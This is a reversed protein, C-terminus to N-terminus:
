AAPLGLLERAVTRPSEDRERALAVVARCALESVGFSLAEPSVWGAAEDIRDQDDEARASVYVAAAEFLNHGPRRPGGRAEARTSTLFRAFTKRPRGFM